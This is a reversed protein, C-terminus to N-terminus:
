PRKSVHGCSRYVALGRFHSGRRSADKTLLFTAETMVDFLCAPQNLFQCTVLEAEGVALHDPTALTLAVTNGTLMDLTLTVTDGSLADQFLAGDMFTFTLGAIIEAVQGNMFNNISPGGCNPTSENDGGGGSCGLVTGLVILMLAVRPWVRDTRTANTQNGISWPFPHQM